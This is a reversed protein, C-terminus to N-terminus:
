HGGGCGGGCSGGHGSCSGGCSGGDGGSNNTHFKRRLKELEVFASKDYIWGAGFEADLTFLSSVTPLPEGFDGFQPHNLRLAHYSAWTQIINPKFKSASTMAQPVAAEDPIHHLYAGFARDCFARYEAGFELFAHWAEDAVKSPMGLNRAKGMAHLYFYQRLANWAKIRTKPDFDPQKITLLEQCAKPFEYNQVFLLKKSQYRKDITQLIVFGVVIFIGSFIGIM